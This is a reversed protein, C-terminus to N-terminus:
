GDEMFIHAVRNEMEGTLLDMSVKKSLAHVYYVGEKIDITITGPTLTISNAFTVLALDSKLRTKIRIIRPEIPMKPHLALYAVHINALMIQYILWPLYRMFRIIEKHMDVALTRFILDHFTHAVLTCCIVGFSLHFM